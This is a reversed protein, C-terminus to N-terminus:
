TTQLIRNKNFTTAHKKLKLPLYIFYYIIFILSASIIFGKTYLSYETHRTVFSELFGAIIFVPVLGLVIKIGTNATKRFSVLRSYTKPFLWGNGMHIGAGGAIIIASIELTGHIWITSLSEPLLGKQYFFYQFTGLMVGNYVMIYSSGVSTLLGLAFAFFAVRINNFTITVFMSASDQSKYVGLPDGNDINRLTMEVYDDGLIFRVFTDDVSTSFCGVLFSLFFIVFALLMSKRAKYMMEPVESKWFSIFRERKEKKNKYIGHHFKTSLTNLYQTIKIDGYKSQSYSLDTTIDIYIQSLEDVSVTDQYKAIKEYKQWKDRNQKIFTSEKM